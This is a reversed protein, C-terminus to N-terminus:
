LRLPHVLENQPFKFQISLMTFSLEFFLKRKHFFTYIDYMYSADKNPFYGIPLTNPCFFTRSSTFYHQGLVNAFVQLLHQLGNFLQVGWMILVIKWHSILITSLSNLFLDRWGMLVVFISFGKKLFCFKIFTFVFEIRRSRFYSSKMVPM